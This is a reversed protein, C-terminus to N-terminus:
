HKPTFKSPRGRQQEKSGQTEQSTPDSERPKATTELPPQLLKKTQISFQKRRAALPMTNQKPEHQPQLLKLKFELSLLLSEASLIAEEHPERPRLSTLHALLAQLAQRYDNAADICRKRVVKGADGRDHLAALYEGHARYYEGAAIYVKSRLRFLEDM